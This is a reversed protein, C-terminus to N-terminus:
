EIADGLVRGRGRTKMRVRACAAIESDERTNRRVAMSAGGKRPYLYSRARLDGWLLMALLSLRDGGCDEGRSM